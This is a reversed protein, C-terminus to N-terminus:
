RPCVNFAIGHFSNQVPEFEMDAKCETVRFGRRRYLRLVNKTAKAVTHVHRNKLVESMGFRLGKSITVLFPIKNVFMIDIALVAGQFHLQIGRPIGDTRGSIPTGQQYATKGKLASINKGLIHDAASIDQHTVPCNALLNSDVIKNYTRISPFMIINQVCQALMADRYEQKTYEKKRDDVMSIFAWADASADGPFTGCACLGKGVPRFPVKIGNPGTVLFADKIHNDYQVHYHRQVIYFSLINVVGEAHLWAPEPFDGLYGQRTITVQGANCRVNIGIPVNHIDHLLDPDCVMNLTSASDLVLMKSIDQKRNTATIAVINDINSPLQYYDASEDLNDL